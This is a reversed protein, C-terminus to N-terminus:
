RVPLSILAALAILAYALRRFTIESARGFLHTGLWIAAGYVPLLTMADLMLQRHLLGQSAYSIGAIISSFASFIMLNARVAGHKGPGGLWFLVIPPGYFSTLGGVFGAVAGVAGSLAPAPVRNYRWGSALLAVAVLSLTPMAWRLALPDASVLLWAGLPITIGAGLALPLVERWSCHRAATLMLAWSPLLDLLFILVVATAPGVVMAALPVFVMAAGFGSFGRVVGALIAAAFLSLLQMMDPM